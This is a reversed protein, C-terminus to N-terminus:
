FEGEFLDGIIFAAVGQADLWVKLKRVQDDDGMGTDTCIVMEYSTVYNERLARSRNVMANILMRRVDVDQAPIWGRLDLLEAMSSPNQTGETRELFMPCQHLPDVMRDKEKFWRRVAAVLESDVGAAGLKTPHQNFRM